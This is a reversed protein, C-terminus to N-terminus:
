TINRIIGVYFTGKETKWSSLSLEIPFESGDNKLGSMEVIKGIVKSEGTSTVRHLGKIHADRYREPIIITLTKGLVEEETYLFNREAGNNWSIINGNSDVLIVADIASKIVSRFREESEILEGLDSNIDRM